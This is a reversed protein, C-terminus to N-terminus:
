DLVEEVASAVLDAILTARFELLGSLDDQIVIEIRDDESGLLEIETSFDLRIKLMTNTSDSISTVIRAGPLNLLNFLNKVNGSFRLKNKRYWRFIIGNELANLNLIKNYSFGYSAGDTSTPNLDDVLTLELAQASVRQGKEPTMTYIAPAGTEEFQIDDLYYNPPPGGGIDITKVVLQDLTTGSIAFDTLGITFNQWENVTTTSIYESLNIENSIDTGALRFKLSVDKTGKTGWGTVYIAGSLAEYNNFTIAGSDGNFLAEEGNVTAFADVSQTGTNAQTTSVFDWIGSIASASWGSSDGGNHILLPTGGASISINLDPGYTDNSAIINNNIHHDMPHTYAAIGFPKNAEKGNAHNEDRIVEATKGSTASGIEFKIM